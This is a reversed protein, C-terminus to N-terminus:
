QPTQPPAQVNFHVVKPPGDGLDAEIAYPGFDPLVLGLIQFSSRASGENPLVFTTNFSQLPAGTPRIISLKMGVNEGPEGIVSFAIALQPHTVPTNTTWIKDFIGVLCLKGNQTPFAYDCLIIWECDAM